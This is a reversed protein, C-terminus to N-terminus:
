LEQITYSTTYSLLKESLYDPVSGFCFYDVKLVSTISLFGDLNLFNRCLELRVPFM